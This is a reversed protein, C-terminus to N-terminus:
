PTLINCTTYNYTNYWMTHGHLSQFDTSIAQSTKPGPTSPVFSWQLEGVSNQTSTGSTSFVDRCTVTCSWSSFYTSNLCSSNPPLYWMEYVGFCIPRWVTLTVYQLRCTQPLGNWTRTWQPGQVFVHTKIIALLNSILWLNHWINCAFDRSCMYVGLTRSIGANAQRGYWVFLVRDGAIFYRCSILTAQSSILYISM